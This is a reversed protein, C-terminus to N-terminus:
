GALTAQAADKLTKADEGGRALIRLGVYAATLGRAKKRIASRSAGTTAPDDALAAAFGATMRNLMDAVARAIEPDDKAAGAASNCLLCGRRDGAHVASVASEFVAKIRVSGGGDAPQELMAVAPTVAISDYRDLARLFLAKKSGFAKYLSGRSIGMGDILDPLAAGDYGQEWFIEMARDIAEDIEFERPRAM